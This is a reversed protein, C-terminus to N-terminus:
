IYKRGDTFYFLYKHTKERGNTSMGYSGITSDKKDALLYMPSFCHNFNCFGIDFLCDVFCTLGFWKDFDDFKTAVLNGVFGSACGVFDFKGFDVVGFIGFTIAFGGDDAIVDACGDACV